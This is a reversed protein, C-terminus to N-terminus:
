INKVSIIKPKIRAKGTYKQSGTKKTPEERDLMYRVLKKGNPSLGNFEDKSLSIEYGHIRDKVAELIRDAIIWDIERTLKFESYNVKFFEKTSDSVIDQHVRIGDFISIVNGRRRAKKPDEKPPHPTATVTVFEEIEEITYSPPLEYPSNGKCCVLHYRTIGDEHEIDDPHYRLPLTGDCVDSICNVGRVPCSILPIDSEM